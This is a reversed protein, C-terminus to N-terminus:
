TRIDDKREEIEKRKKEYYEPNTKRIYEAVDDGVGREFKIPECYTPILKHDRFHSRAIQKFVRLLLEDSKTM